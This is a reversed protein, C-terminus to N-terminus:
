IYYIMKGEKGQEKTQERHLNRISLRSVLDLIECCPSSSTM